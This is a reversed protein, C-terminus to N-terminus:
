CPPVALASMIACVVESVRPRSSARVAHLPVAIVSDARVVAGGHDIGPIGVRIEVAAPGRLAVDDAILAIVPAATEPPPEVVSAAVWVVADAEGADLIRSGDHRWPDHDPIGAAFSV